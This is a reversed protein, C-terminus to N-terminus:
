LHNKWNLPLKWYGVHTQSLSGFKIEILEYGARQCSVYLQNEAEEYSLNNFEDMSLSIGHGILQKEKVVYRIAIEDEIIEEVVYHLLYQAKEEDYVGLYQYVKFLLLTYLMQEKESLEAYFLCDKVHVLGHEIIVSGNENKPLNTPESTWLALNGSFGSLFTRNLM